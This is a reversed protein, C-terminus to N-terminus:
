EGGVRGGLQARLKSEDVFFQFWEEGDVTVVPIRELYRRLLDDDDEINREELAFPHTARVRQLVLRAEDCLHCGPRGFLVVRTV